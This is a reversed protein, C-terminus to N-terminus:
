VKKKVKVYVGIIIFSFLTFAFILYIPLSIFSVSRQFTPGNESLKVNLSATYIGFLFKKPLIMVPHDQSLSSQYDLETKSPLAQLTDIIYRKSHAPVYQPLIEIFGQDRGFMDRISVRGRPQFYNDGDNGILLTFPVPGNTVFFPVNFQSISGKFQEREGISLILNTGIGGLTTSSSIASTNTNSVFLVSIYYDGSAISPDVYLRLTLSKSQFPNLKLTNLETEGDYVKLKKFILNYRDEIQNDPLYEIQGNAKTSLRFTKFNLALNQTTESKNQITVKAEVNAPPKANVVIIPPSIGLSFTNSEAYLRHALVFFM